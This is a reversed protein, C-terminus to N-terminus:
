ESNKSNNIYNGNEDRNIPSATLCFRLCHCPCPIDIRYKEKAGRYTFDGGCRIVECWTFIEAIARPCFGQPTEYEFHFVDGKELGLRCNKAEGDIVEVDEIQEATVNDNNYSKVTASREFPIIYWAAVKSCKNFAKRAKEGTVYRDPNILEWSFIHWIYNGTKVVKDEIDRKSIGMAFHLLWEKKFEDLKMGTHM